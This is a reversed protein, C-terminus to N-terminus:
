RRVILLIFVSTYFYVFLHPQKLVLYEGFIIIFLGFGYSISDEHTLTIRNEMNIIRKILFVPVNINHLLKIIM